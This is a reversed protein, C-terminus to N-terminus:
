KGQIFENYNFLQTMKITKKPKLQHSISSGVVKVNQNNCISLEPKELLYTFSIVYNSLQILTEDRQLLKVNKTGGNASPM